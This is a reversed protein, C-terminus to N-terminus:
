KDMEFQKKLDNGAAIVEQTHTVWELTEDSEQISQYTVGAIAVMLLLPVSFGFLIKQRTKLNKFRNNLLEIVPKFM